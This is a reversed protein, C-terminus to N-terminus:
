GCAGARTLVVAGPPPEWAGRRGALPPWPIAHSGKEVHSLDKVPGDQM